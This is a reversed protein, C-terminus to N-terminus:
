LWHRAPMSTRGDSSMDDCRDEKFIAPLPFLASQISNKRLDGYATGRLELAAEAPPWSEFDVNYDVSWDQSFDFGVAALRRFVGGDADDPWDAVFDRM